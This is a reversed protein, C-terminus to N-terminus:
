VLSHKMCTTVREKGAATLTVATARGDKAHPRRRVLKRKELLRLMAAVTNVDAYSLDALQRQTCEGLEKLLSLIVFQDATIGLPEFRANFRRHMTLYAGRLRFAALQRFNSMAFSLVELDQPTLSHARSRVLHQHSGRSPGM